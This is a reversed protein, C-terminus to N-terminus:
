GDKGHFHLLANGKHRQRVRTATLLVTFILIRTVCCHKINIIEIHIHSGVIHFVSRDERLTGSM